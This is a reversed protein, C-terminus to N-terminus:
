HMYKTQKLKPDEMADTQNNSKANLGDHGTLM